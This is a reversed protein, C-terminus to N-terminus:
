AGVGPDILGFDGNKRRHIVNVRETESNFFVLFEYGLTDLQMAAEDVPMPKPQYKDSEVITRIGAGPGTQPLSFVEVSAQGRAARRRDKQKERMKRVQAELKDVVLDITQYMDESQERASIHITDSDLVVDAIQRTKEVSLNVFLENNDPNMYKTIKDFRKKAYDRLHDSPEFNKFNYNINM